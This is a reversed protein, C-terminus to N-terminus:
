KNIKFEFRETTKTIYYKEFEEPNEEKFLAQDFATRSKEVLGFSYIGYDMSKVDAQSLLAVLQLERKEIEKEINNLEFKLRARDDKLADMEKTILDLDITVKRQKM